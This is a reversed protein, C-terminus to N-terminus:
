HRVLAMPPKPDISTMPGTAGCCRNRGGEKAEYLFADAVALWEDLDTINDGQSSIGFSATVFHETNNLQVPINAICHRLRNAFNIAAERGTAPLLLAFEEGGIRGLMDSDRMEGLCRQVLTKLVADGAPHGYLDNVQKFHDIDFIIISAETGYRSGRALEKEAAETWARRTMAGTLEDSMAIQRLELENMVLKAFSALIEIQNQSFVRPNIDSVCLAGINYGDPTELPIGLYSRIGPEGTVLPNNAFRDDCTTDPVMLPEGQKITHTCFSIDRSTDCASWGAVSKFWQRDSDILSVAAVPVALVNRVLETLKDFPAEPATDLVDYRRLAALRGEEDNLKDNHKM